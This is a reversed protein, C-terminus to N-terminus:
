VFILSIHTFIYNSHPNKKEKKFLFHLSSPAHSTHTHDTFPSLSIIKLDTPDTKKQTHIITVTWKYNWKATTFAESKYKINHM